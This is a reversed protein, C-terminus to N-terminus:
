LYECQVIKIQDEYRFCYIPCNFLLSCVNESWREDLCDRRPRHRHLLRCHVDRRSLSPGASSIKHRTRQLDHGSLASTQNLSAKDLSHDCGSYISAFIHLLRADCDSLQFDQLGRHNRVASPCLRDRSMVTYRCGFEM